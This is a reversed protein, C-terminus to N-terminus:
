TRLMADILDVTRDIDDESNFIHTSFRLGNYSKRPVEKDPVYAYTGQAHKVTMNYDDFM